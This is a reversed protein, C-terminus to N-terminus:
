APPLGEMRRWASVQGLHLTVHGSLYFNLLSGLTPCLQKMPTDMPNPALLQEDSAQRVADMASQYGSNFCALIDEGAPYLTGEVDDQCRADKSFLAEYGAPPEVAAADQGLLQLVKAPYLCLHGLAFAPHNSVIPQGGPAAFRGWREAPVGSVLKNANRVGVSATDAIIAGFQGM